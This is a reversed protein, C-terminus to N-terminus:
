HHIIAGANEGRKVEPREDDVLNVWSSLIEIQQRISSVTPIEKEILLGQETNLYILDEHRHADLQGAHEILGAIYPDVSDLTHLLEKIQHKIPDINDRITKPSPRNNEWMLGMHLITVLNLIVRHFDGPKGPAPTEVHASILNLVEDTYIERM